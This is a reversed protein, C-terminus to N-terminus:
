RAEAELQTVPKGAWAPPEISFVMPALLAALALANSVGWILILRAPSM